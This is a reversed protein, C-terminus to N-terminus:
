PLVGYCPLFLQGMIIIRYYLIFYMNYYIYLDCMWTEKKLLVFCIFDMSEDPSFLSIDEVRSM